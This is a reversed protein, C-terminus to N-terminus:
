TLAAPQIAALLDGALFPKQLYTAGLQAADQRLVPDDWGTIIVLHVGARAERALLGLQIGNFDGLRIDTVVLEPKRRQIKARADPFDSATVVDYGAELLWRGTLALVLADDDVVLALKM